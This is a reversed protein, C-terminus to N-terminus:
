NPFLVEITNQKIGKDYFNKDIEKLKGELEKIDRETQSRADNSRKLNLKKQYLERTWKLKIQSIKRSENATQNQFLMSLHYLLFLPLAISMCGCLVLVFLLDPYNRILYHMVAGPQPESVKGTREYYYYNIFLGYVRIIEIYIFTIIFAIDLCMIFHSALFWLFYRYNKAGICGNIWICHHDQREICVNCLSCHKSRAIKTIKCTPCEIPKFLYKDYPYKKELLKISDKTIKGPNTLTLFLFSALSLLMLICCIFIHMSGIEKSPLFPIVGRFLFVAIGGYAIM